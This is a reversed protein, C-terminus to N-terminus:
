SIRISLGCGTNYPCNYFKVGDEKRISIRMNSNCRPCTKSHIPLILYFLAIFLINKVGKSRLQTAIEYATASSTFQDDIIIISKGELDVTDLTFLYKFDFNVFFSTNLIEVTSRIFDIRKSDIIL